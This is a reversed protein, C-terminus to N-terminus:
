SRKQGEAEEKIRLKVAEILDNQTIDKRDLAALVDMDVTGRCALIHILVTRKQGQRHLRANAQQFVELSWTLGFWVIINGGDQLNLGHGASQPQVLLVPIRGANWDAIDQDTKLERVTYAKLRERIRDADHKFNYFVMVPQGNAAEILEELKDLKQGHMVQVNKDDDYVAGNAIQLLKNVVVAKSGAVIEGNELALIFEKELRKYQERIDKELDIEHVTTIAEPVSLWDEAKLSMCVDGIKDYIKQESGKKLRWNYVVYGVSYGPTFYERQYHSMAKGLREGKDILYVEPWLDLLSNPAPTGTLGIFYDYPVQRLAKFRQSSANKFSSLEDVVVMRFPWRKKQRYYKILWVVNERNIVYLDANTELADIRQTETGLITSLRLDKLHDWKDIERSWTDKAVLKPAIILAKSFMFEDRICERLYTLTIVTKGMGM